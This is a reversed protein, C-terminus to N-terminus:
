LSPVNRPRPARGPSPFAFTYCARACVYVFVRESLALPQPTHVPFPRRDQWPGCVSESPGSIDSRCVNGATNGAGGRFDAAYRCCGPSM